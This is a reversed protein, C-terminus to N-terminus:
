ENVPEVNKASMWMKQGNYNVQIGGPPHYNLVVAIQGRWAKNRAKTGIRVHGGVVIDPSPSKPQSFSPTDVKVLEALVEQVVPKIYNLTRKNKQKHPFLENPLRDAFFRLLGGPTPDSVERELIKRMVKAQEFSTLVEKESFKGRSFRELAVMASKNLSLMSVTLFPEGDMVHLKNLDTYFRYEVGDTLVGFRAESYHYYDSLQKVHHDLQSRVRKCEIIISPKGGKLIAYDVKDNVGPFGSPYQPYVENPNGPDYGLARLFPNVLANITAQEALGSDKMEKAKEGLAKLDEELGM